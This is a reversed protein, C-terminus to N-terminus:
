LPRTGLRPDATDVAPGRSGCNFRSSATGNADRRGMGNAHDGSRMELATLICATVDLLWGEIEGKERPAPRAALGLRKMYHKAAIAADRGLVSRRADNRPM